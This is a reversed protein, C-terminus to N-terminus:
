HAFAGFWLGKCKGKNIKAGSAREYPDFTNFAEDISQDDSLLLTTDDAYQSLKM